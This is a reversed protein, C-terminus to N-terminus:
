SDVLHDPGVGGPDVDTEPGHDFPARDFDDFTPFSDGDNFDRAFRIFFDRRHAMAITTPHTLYGRALACQPCLGADAVHAPCLPRGCRQCTAAARGPCRRLVFFGMAVGCTANM